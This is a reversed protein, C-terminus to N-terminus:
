RVKKGLRPKAVDVSGCSQRLVELCERVGRLYNYEDRDVLVKNTNSTVDWPYGCGFETVFRDVLRDTVSCTGNLVNNMTQPLMGLRVSIESLLLGGRRLRDVENEFWARKWQQMVGCSGEDADDKRADDGVLLWTRDLDPCVALIKEVAKKGLDHKGSRANGLLGVSLGALRTMQHDNIGKGSMYEDLRDIIRSM